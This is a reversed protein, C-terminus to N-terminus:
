VKTQMNSFMYIIHQIAYVTYVANWQSGKKLNQQQGAAAANMQFDNNISWKLRAFQFISVFFFYLFLFFSLFFTTFFVDTIRNPRPFTLQVFLLYLVHIKRKGSMWMITSYLLLWSLISAVSVFIWAYISFLNSENNSTHTNWARHEFSSSSSAFHSFISREATSYSNFYMHWQHM